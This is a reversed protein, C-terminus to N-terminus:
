DGNDMPLMEHPDTPPIPTAQSGATSPTWSIPTTVGSLSAGIGPGRVPRGRWRTTRSLSRRQHSRWPGGPVLGPDRAPGPDHRLHLQHGLRDRERHPVVRAPRVGPRAVQLLPFDHPLCRIWDEATPRVPQRVDTGARRRGPERGPESATDGGRRRESLGCPDIRGSWVADVHDCQRWRPLAARLRPDDPSFNPDLSAPSTVISALPSGSVPIFVQDSPVAAHAPSPILTVAFTTLGSAAVIAAVRRSLRLLHRRRAPQEGAFPAPGSLGVSTM